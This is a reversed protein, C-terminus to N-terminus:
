KGEAGGIRQWVRDIARRLEPSARARQEDLYPRAAAGMLLLDEEAMRRVLPDPDLLKTAQCIPRPGRRLKNTEAVKVLKGADDFTLAAGLTGSGGQMVVVTASASKGGEEPSVKTAEDLLSFKFFGDQHFQQSLRVWARAAEKFQEDEKAAGLHAKFFKELERADTLVTVKGDRDVAFVNSAKLGEPPVRGVPYQRFLVSVFVYEPLAKAVAADEVPAVAAGRGTLKEDASVIKTAQRVEEATPPKRDPAAAALAAWGLLAAGALAIRTTM